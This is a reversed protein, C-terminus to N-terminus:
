AEVLSSMSLDSLHTGRWLDYESDSIGAASGERDRSDEAAPSEDRSRMIM